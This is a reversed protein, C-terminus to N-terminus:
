GRDLRPPNSQILTLKLRTNAYRSVRCKSSCGSRMIRWDEVRFTNELRYGELDLVTEVRVWFRGGKEVKGLCDLIGRWVSWANIM